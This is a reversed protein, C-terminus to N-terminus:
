DLTIIKPGEDIYNVKTFNYKKGILSKIKKIKKKNELLMIYGRGGSGCLKFNFIKNKIFINFINSIDPTYAKYNILSKNTRNQDFLYKLQNFNINKKNILQEFRKSNEVELRLIDFINNKTNHKYFKSSNINSSVYVLYLRKSFLNTIKKDIKKVNIKNKFFVLKNFGGYACVAQDQVGGKEKLIKREIKVAEKYTSLPCYKKKSLFNKLAVLGVTFSSSGGLGSSFAMDNKIMLNIKKNKFINNRFVYNIIPHKIKKLSNVEEIKSYSFKHKKPADVPNESYIIYIYKNITGSFIISKEKKFFFDFDSGGGFLSVRYPVRVIIM